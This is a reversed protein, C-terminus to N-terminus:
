DFEFMKVFGKQGGQRYISQLVAIQHNIHLMGSGNRIAKYIETVTTTAM